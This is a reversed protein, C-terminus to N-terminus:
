TSPTAARAGASDRDSTFAIWLGDPSWAPRYDGSPHNTLNRLRRTRLELIWIDAQGTRSSVFALSTGDPSMVAQDDFASHDTLRELGSGDPRVRYVDASGNRRSTFVVWQGDPSISPNSDLVSPAVLVREHSGDADAIFIASNLPGFSAYAVTYPVDAGLAQALVALVAVCSALGALKGTRKQM